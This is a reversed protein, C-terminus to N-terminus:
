TEFFSSIEVNFIKAMEEIHSAKLEAQNNEIKCFYCQSIGLFFAMDAQTLNRDERLKRITTGYQSM